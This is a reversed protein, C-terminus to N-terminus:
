SEPGNDSRFEKSPYSTWGASAIRKAVESERFCSECLNRRKENGTRSPVTLHVTAEERNCNECLM